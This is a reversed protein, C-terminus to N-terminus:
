DLAQQVTALITTTLSFTCYKGLTLSSGYAACQMLKHASHRIMPNYESRQTCFVSTKASDLAPSLYSILWVVKRKFADTPKASDAQDNDVIRGRLSRMIEPRALYSRLAHTEGRITADFFPHRSSRMAASLIPTVISTNSIQQM